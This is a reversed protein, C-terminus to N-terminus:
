LNLIAIPELDQKLKEKDSPLFGYYEKFVKTFYGPAEFGTAYAIGSINDTDSRLMEYAKQLKLIRIFKITTQNTIAKIKRNLQSTSLGISEALNEVGFESDSINKEIISIINNLFQIDKSTLKPALFFEEQALIATHEEENQLSLFKMKRLDAFAKRQKQNYFYFSIIGFIIITILTVIILEHPFLATELPTM